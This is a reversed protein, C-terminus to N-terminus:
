SNHKTRSKPNKHLVSLTHSTCQLADMSVQLRLVNQQGLTALLGLDSVYTRCEAM